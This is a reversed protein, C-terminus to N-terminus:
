SNRGRRARAEGEGEGQPNHKDIQSLPVGTAELECECVCVCAVLTIMIPYLCIDGKTQMRACLWQSEGEHTGDRKRTELSIAISRNFSPHVANEAQRLDELHM